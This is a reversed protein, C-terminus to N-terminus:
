QPSVIELRARIADFFTEAIKQKGADNPHLGDTGLFVGAQGGFAAHMDVLVAGEAVAMTRIRDNTPDILEPAFARSGGPRQPLLTALFVVSGRSRAEQVMLRLQSVVSPIAEEGSGNLDNVGELLLLVDPHEANLVSRLRNRGDICRPSTPVPCGVREGGVGEDYVVISQAQATYRATLMAHLRAPYSGPPSPILPSFAIVTLGETISDGFATFTTASIRPPAQVTVNFSCTDSRQLTDTAVCSVPTAGIAFSTGSAPTCVISVPPAGDAVTAPAYSVSVAQGDISPVTQATPCSM